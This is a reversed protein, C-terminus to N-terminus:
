LLASDMQQKVAQNYLSAATCIDKVCSIPELSFVRDQRRDLRWNGKSWDCIGIALYGKVAM